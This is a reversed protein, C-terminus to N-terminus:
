LDTYLYTDYHFVGRIQLILTCLQFYNLVEYTILFYLNFYESKSKRDM